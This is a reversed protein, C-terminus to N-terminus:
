EEQISENEDSYEEQKLKKEIDDIRRNLHAFPESTRNAMLRAVELNGALANSKSMKIIVRNNVPDGRELSDLLFETAADLRGAHYLLMAYHEVCHQCRPIGKEEMLSLIAAAADLREPAHTMKENSGKHNSMLDKSLSELLYSYSDYNPEIGYADFDEFISFARNVDPLEAAASLVANLSALTVKAEQEEADSSTELIRYANGVRGSSFSCFSM